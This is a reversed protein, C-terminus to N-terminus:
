SLNTLIQTVVTLFALLVATTFAATTWRSWPRTGPRASPVHRWSRLALATLVTFAAACAIWLVVPVYEWLGGRWTLALLLLGGAVQTVIEARDPAPRRSARRRLWAVGWVGSVGLGSAGRVGAVGAVGAVAMLPFVVTLAIIAVNSWGPFLDVGIADRSIGLLEIGADDVARDTNSLVVATAARPGRTFGAYSRSGGTGGNHWTVAQNDYMTTHWGYGVREGPEDTPWRPKAAAAGPASGDRVARLLKDLDGATSWTGSGAPAFGDDGWPEVQAGSERHPRAYGAPPAGHEGAVYTATMGLPGLIRERLLEPYPKGAREALANGLISVGLNSYAYTGRDGVSARDLLEDPTSAYPDGGAWNAVIGEYFGTLPGGGVRPLGARHSALEALTVSAVEPDDFARGPYIEGLTTSGKVEGREEMSALLMGTLAKTISGIEFPTDARVPGGDRGGTEGLAATGNGVPGTIAVALGLRGDAGAFTRASDALPGGGSEPLSPTWPAMLAALVAAVVLLGALLVIPGRRPRAQEAPTSTRTMEDTNM